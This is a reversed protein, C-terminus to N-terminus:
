PIQPRFPWAPRTRKAHLSDRLGRLSYHRGAWTGLGVRVGEPIATACVVLMAALNLLELASGYITEDMASNFIKAVNILIMAQFAMGFRLEWKLEAYRLIASILLADLIIGIAPAYPLGYRAYLVSVVFSAAGCGLWTWARRVRWSIVSTFGFVSLLAWHWWHM